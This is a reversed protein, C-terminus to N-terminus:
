EDEAVDDDLRRSFRLGPRLSPRAPRDDDLRPPSPLSPLPRPPSSGASLIEKLRRAADKGVDRVRGTTKSDSHGM